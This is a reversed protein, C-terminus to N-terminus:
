LTLLGSAELGHRELQVSKSLRPQLKKSPAFRQIQPLRHGRARGTM